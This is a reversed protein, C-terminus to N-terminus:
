MINILNAPITTQLRGYNKADQHLLFIERYYYQSKM